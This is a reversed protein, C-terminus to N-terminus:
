ARPPAVVSALITDVEGETFARMTQTKVSGVMGITVIFKALATDDPAEVVWIVDYAGMTVYATFTVGLEKARERGRDRRQPTDKIETRGQDTFTGLVIYTAM